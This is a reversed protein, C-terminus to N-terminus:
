HKPKPEKRLAGILRLIENLNHVKVVQTGHHVNKRIYSSQNEWWWNDSLTTMSMVDDTLRLESVM